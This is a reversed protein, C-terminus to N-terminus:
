NIIKHFATTIDGYIFWGYILRVVFVTALIYLFAFFCGKGEEMDREQQVKAREEEEICIRERIEAESDM